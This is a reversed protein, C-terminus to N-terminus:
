KLRAVSRYYEEDSMRGPDAGSGGHRAGSSARQPAPEQAQEKFLYGDTERLRGIQAELRAASDEQAGIQSLDLAARALLPNRAGARALALEAASELRTRALEAAHRERLADVEGRGVYQGSKLNALEVDGRAALAQELQAYTLAGEGFVDKLFEM